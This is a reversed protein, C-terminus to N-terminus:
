AYVGSGLTQIYANRASDRTIEKGEKDKLIEDGLNQSTKRGAEFKKVAEDFLATVYAEQYSESQGMLEDKLDSGIVAKKIEMDCDLCDPMKDGLIAKAKTILQAKAVARDNIMKEIDSDKMKTKESAEKKAMAEDKEKM